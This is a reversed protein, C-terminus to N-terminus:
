GPPPWSCPGDDEQVLEATGTMEIGEIHFRLRRRFGAALIPGDPGGGGANLNAIAQGPHGPDHVLDRQNAANAM